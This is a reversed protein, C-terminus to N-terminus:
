YILLERLQALHLGMYVRTVEQITESMRIVSVNKKKGGAAEEEFGSEKIDEKVIKQPIISM